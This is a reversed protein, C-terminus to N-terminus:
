LYMHLWYRDGSFQSNSERKHRPTSSIINQSWTQRHSAVPRQNEGPVLLVSRWSIVSTNNFTVNFVRVRTWWSLTNLKTNINHDICSLRQESFKIDSAFKHRTIVKNEQIQCSKSSSTNTSTPTATAATSHSSIPLTSSILYCQSLFFCM